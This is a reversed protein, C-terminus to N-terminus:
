VSFTEENKGFPQSEGYFRHELGIIIGKYKEALEHIWRYSNYGISLEGEGGVIM